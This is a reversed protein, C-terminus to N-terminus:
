EIYKRNSERYLNAPVDPYIHIQFNTFTISFIIDERHIRASERATAARLHYPLSRKEM